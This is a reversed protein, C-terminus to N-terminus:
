RVFVEVATKSLVMTKVYAVKFGRYDSRSRQFFKQASLILSDQTFLGFCAHAFNLAERILIVNTNFALRIQLATSNTGYFQLAM